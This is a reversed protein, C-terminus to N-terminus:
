AIRHFPSRIVSLQTRCLPFAEFPILLIQEISGCGYAVYGKGAGELMAKHHPSFGFWYKAGASSNLEKAVLCVVALSGDPSMYLTRSSKILPKGLVTEIRKACANNFSLPTTKTKEGTKPDVGPLHENPQEANRMQGNDLDLVGNLSSDGVFDFGDDAISDSDKSNNDLEDTSVPASEKQEQGKEGVPRIGLEECAEVIQSVAVGRDAYFESERIRVFRWGARELQRQRAMDREYRDPGHWNDGDCEVALRNNLGEVVLDIRYGAVKYQSRLRYRKRLLELAVDVEFWSEYPSPQGGPQRSPRKAERELSDLEEYFEENGRSYFYSVLRWRLDERSLDHQEVSHFLWVQDRARSMAVNFRRQEPLRTLARYNYDPAVVLSLFIVDRQDGQFTAPVGCRIKRKERVEPELVEALKKEILEAQARGQLVIVGITKDKYAADNLCTQIKEVIAEAEARNIIRQEKGECAGKDVFVPCLPPLRDLPPQRLPILPADTYCLDNSFRIIEPVCRFHERLSILNGFAREAHDFLSTDPRFEDRFRFQRLHDRALRAINDELVGVAEPSNQKDDGVVIIRKALLLLALADIGAQSAEDVIVTDFLGPTPDTTEWVKHLPMIWAPIKPICEMLYQRATRRHRNANRGTGKGIRAVVRTWAILNQETRDDLRSFFAQWAKSGTLEQLKKEYRDQLRRREEILQQYAATDTVQSLWTKAAAWAWAEELRLLRAKWEPNGQSITLFSKFGPCAQGLKAVLEKYRNLRIFEKKLDERTKWVTKYLEGDQTEIAIVMQQLCPHSKGYAIHQRLLDQWIKFPGRAQEASRRAKEAKILALWRAREYGQTFKLRENIPVAALSETARGNFLELLSNLEQMLDEALSSAQMPDSNISAIPVPWIQSFKEIGVIIELFAVLRELHQQERPAQGDVRCGKEIYSTERMVRPSIFGIGRWGGNQFYTLRKRADALLEDYQKSQVDSSIDMHTKGLQGRAEKLPNLVVSVDQCLRIWKSQHGVLLDMLVEDTLEQLVRMARTAHEDLNNLFTECNDLAADPYPHLIHLQEQQLGKCANEVAQEMTKLKETAEAFEKPDTLPDNGFGIDLHLEQWREQTLESHVDAILDSDASQLPCDQQNVSIETFWGYTEEKENIKRAIQATTGQYDGSLYHFHTEAERSARLNREVRAISDEIQHIEMELKTIEEQESKEGRWKHKRGLIGSVSNELLKQDDRTSGLATVCLNPIDGTLFNKQLVTLAKPAHATILVREGIALLHSILNAITHSKGTGPPGKVLVFPQMRLRDIIMRQEDNTPLPFYLRPDGLDFNGHSSDISGGVSAGSPPEGERLFREWPSTTCMASDSEAIELFRNILEGYATPHRERLILAPAYVVRFTEDSRERPQWGNMDVESNSSACNAIISLIEGIKIRDWAQIDLEQLLDDLEAGDLRPQNQLELMDLEIRFREFSAAPNVTIIGRAMDFSIEAPATLLHRKITAGTSDRLQLLGVGMILEYREEAEELRHRMFDVEEYVQQLDRWHHMKQAWPEWQNVVYELWADQVEPHEELRRVQPIKKILECGDPGTVKMESLITIETLLEPERETLEIDQHRVWERLIQPITPRPPMRKKRVDLWLDSIDGPNEAFFASCCEAQSRPSNGLWLIKDDATYSTIRKRRITATDKLFRLLAASKEAVEPLKM